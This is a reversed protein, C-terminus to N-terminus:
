TLELLPLGAADLAEGVLLGSGALAGTGGGRVDALPEGGLPGLDLGEVPLALLEDSADPGDILGVETEGGDEDRGAAASGIGHREIEGADLVDLEVRTVVQVRDEFGGARAPVRFVNGSGLAVDRNSVLLLETGDPFWAPNFHIDESGFYLRDNGFSNDSTVAVAEGAWAGDSFDRVFVNFYGTPATSVYAVRTGDPSFSPDVYVEEDNTLSHTEGSELDLVELGISRGHDDATYILWRGDPSYNPSSYYKPGSVLEVARGTEIDVTWISGQMSVAVSEGDPAWDPAWPASNVAPPLYFNHMYMGGMRAAPYSGFPEQGSLPALTTLTLFVVFRPWRVHM